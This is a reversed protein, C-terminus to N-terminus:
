HSEALSGGDGTVQLALEETASQRAPDGHSPPLTRASNPSHTYVLTALAVSVYLDACGCTGTIEASPLKLCITPELDALAASDSRGRM